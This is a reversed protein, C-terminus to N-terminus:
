LMIQAELCFCNGGSRQQIQKQQQQSAFHNMFQGSYIIQSIIGNFFSFTLKYNLKKPMALIKRHFAKM